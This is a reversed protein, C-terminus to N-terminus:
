PRPLAPRAATKLATKETSRAEWRRLRAIDSEIQAIPIQFGPSSVNAFALLRDEDARLTMWKALIDDGRPLSRSGDTPFEVCYERVPSLSRPLLAVVPQHPYVLYRYRPLRREDHGARRGTMCIFGLERFMEWEDPNVVSRLLELSRRDAETRSVPAERVWSPRPSRRPRRLRLVTGTRIGVGLLALTAVLVLVGIGAV